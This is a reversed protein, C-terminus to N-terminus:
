PNTGERLARKTGLFACLYQDGRDYSVIAKDFDCLYAVLRKNLQIIDGKQCADQIVTTETGREPIHVCVQGDPSEAHCLFALLLLPLISLPKM